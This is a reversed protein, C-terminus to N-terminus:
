EVALYPTAPQAQRPTLRTTTSDVLRHLAHPIHPTHRLAAHPAELPPLARKGPPHTDTAVAASSPGRISPSTGARSLSAARSCAGSHRPSVNGMLRKMQQARGRGDDGGCLHLAQDWGGAGGGRRVLSEVAAHSPSPPPPCGRIQQGFKRSRM